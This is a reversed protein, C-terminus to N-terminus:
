LSGDSRVQANQLRNELIDVQDIGLEQIVYKTLAEESVDTHNGVFSLLILITLLIYRKTVVSIVASLTGEKVSEPIFRNANISPTALWAAVATVVGAVPIM